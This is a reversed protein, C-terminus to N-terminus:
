GLVTYLTGEIITEVIEERGTIDPQRSSQRSRDRKKRSRRFLHRRAGENMEVHGDVDETVSPDFESDSDVRMGSSSSIIDPHRSPGGMM